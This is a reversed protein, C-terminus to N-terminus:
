ICDAMSSHVLFLAFRGGRVGALKNAFLYLVASFAKV